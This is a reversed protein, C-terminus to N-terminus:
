LAASRECIGLHSKVFHAIQAANNLDLLPHPCDLEEDTAVAIVSNNEPWVAPKCLSPRYVEIKPVASARFGEILILDVGRMRAVLCDLSPEEDSRYERMLAWRRDSVLMVERCGAERMRFSDKGPKDMDFGHSRFLM